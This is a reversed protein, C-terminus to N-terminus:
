LSRALRFGFNGGASTPDLLSRIASRAQRLEDNFGGGRLVRWAGTAPGNVSATCSRFMSAATSTSSGPSAAASSYWNEDRTM